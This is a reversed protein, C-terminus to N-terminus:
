VRGTLREYLRYSRRTICGNFSQNAYGCLCADGALVSVNKVRANLLLGGRSEIQRCHKRSYIAACYNKVQCLARQTEMRSAREGSFYARPKM